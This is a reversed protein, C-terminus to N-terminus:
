TKTLKRDFKIRIKQVIKGLVANLLEHNGHLLDNIKFSYLMIFSVNISM